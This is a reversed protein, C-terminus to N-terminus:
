KLLDPNEYINGIVEIEWGMEVVRSLSGWVLQNGLGDNLNPDAHLLKWSHEIWEITYLRDPPMLRVLDKHYSEKGNKDKLGTYQLGYALLEGIVIKNAESECDDNFPNWIVSSVKGNNLIYSKFKIERM